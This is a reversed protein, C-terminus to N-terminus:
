VDERGHRNEVLLASSRVNMALEYKYPLLPPSWAKGPPESSTLVEIANINGAHNGPCQECRQRAASLVRASLGAAPDCTRVARCQCGICDTKTRGSRRQQWARQVRGHMARGGVAARRPHALGVRDANSRESAVAGEVHQAGHHRRRADRDIGRPGAPGYEQTQAEAERM